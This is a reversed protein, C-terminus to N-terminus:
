ETSRTFAFAAILLYFLSQHVCRPILPWNCNFPEADSKVTDRISTGRTFPGIIAYLILKWVVFALLVWLWSWGAPSYWLVGQYFGISLACGIIAGLFIKGHSIVVVTDRRMRVIQYIHLLAIVLLIAFQALLWLVSSSLVLTKFFEMM